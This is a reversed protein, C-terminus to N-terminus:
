EKIHQLVTTICAIVLLVIFAILKGANNQYGNLDFLFGTILLSLSSVIKCAILPKFPKKIIYNKHKKVANMIINSTIEKKAGDERIVEEILNAEKIVDSAYELVQKKLTIKANESLGEIQNDEISIQIAM